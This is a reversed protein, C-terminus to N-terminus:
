KTVERLLEELYGVTEEESRAAESWLLEFAEMAWDIRPSPSENVVAGVPTEAHVLTPWQDPLYLITFGANIDAVTPSDTDTPLYRLSVKPFEEGAVKLMYRFQAAYNEPTFIRLRQDLAAQTVLFRVEPGNSKGLLEARTLRVELFTDIEARSSSAGHVALAEALEPAQIQGPYFLHYSDIREAMSEAWVYDAFDQNEVMGDWWGRQRVTEALQRLQLRQRRDTVGYIDMLATLEELEVERHGLEFRSLTTKSYRGARSDDESVLSQKLREAAVEIKFGAAERLQRLWAGFKKARYTTQRPEAV